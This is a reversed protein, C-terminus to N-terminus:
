DSRETTRNFTQGSIKLAPVHFDLFNEDILLGTRAPGSFPEQQGM